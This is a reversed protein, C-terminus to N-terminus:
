EIPTFLWDLQQQTGKQRFGRYGARGDPLLRGIFWEATGHEFTVEYIDAGQSNMGKYSVAKIGGWRDVVEQIAPLRDRVTNAMQDTMESYNPTGNQVSQIYRRLSVETARIAPAPPTLAGAALPLIVAAIASVAFVAKQAAHLPGKDRWSMIDAIRTKLEGGSVSSVAAIPPRVYARCVKLISEAYTTPNNGAALVSEDCAREREIILKAGIWWVLPHFWFLAEVLMHLTATLNDRRRLHSHEHAIIANLEDVSLREVIDEPLLLAPRRIGILGPELFYPTAKVPVDAALSLPTATWLVRDMRMWQTLRLLFITMFGLAWVAFIALPVNIDPMSPAALHINQSVPGAFPEMADLFQELAPLNEAPALVTDGIAALAALPYPIKVIRDAVLYLARARRQQAGGDHAAGSGGRFDDVAL